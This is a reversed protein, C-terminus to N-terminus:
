IKPAVMKIMNFGTIQFGSKEYLAKAGPNNVAVRLGIETIGKQAIRNELLTLAARGFGRGRWPELLCFDSIWIATGNEVLWLYGLVTNENDDPFICWLLNAPTNVGESLAIDISSIAIETAKSMSYGRSEHLDQAYEAIFFRRYEPFEAETMDKLIVM